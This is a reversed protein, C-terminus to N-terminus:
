GIAAALRPVLSLPTANEVLARQAGDLVDSLGPAPDTTEAVAFTAGSFPWDTGFVIQGVDAVELVSRMSSASASLATDYYFRRLAEGVGLLSVSPVADPVVTRPTSLRTALFPLCGGAHALVFRIRPYRDLTGSLILSTATRTTDFPFELLFDPLPLEPKSPAPMEGPHVFVTASYANLLAMVPEFRPDGLYVGDYSSLLTVGDMRVVDLAHTIEALTAAVDPLPVTAFSGFRTPWRRQLDGAYDNCARALRIADGGSVFRVGPDSVSLVQAAIGFRDMFDLSSEPSWAPFPLGGPAFLGARLVAARYDPPIMHGHLDIRRGAAGSSAPTDGAPTAQATGGGSLALAGGAAIAQVLRRRGIRATSPSTSIPEDHTM